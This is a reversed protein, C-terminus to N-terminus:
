KRYVAARNTGAVYELRCKIGQAELARKHALAATPDGSFVPETFGQAENTLPTIWDFSGAVKLVWDPILYGM